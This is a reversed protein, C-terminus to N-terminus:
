IEPSDDYSRSPTVTQTSKFNSVSPDSKEFTAQTQASPFDMIQPPETILCFASELISLTSSQTDTSIIELGM